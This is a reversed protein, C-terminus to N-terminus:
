YGIAIWMAGGSLNGIGFSGKINTKTRENVQSAYLSASGNRAHQFCFSYNTDSFPTPFTITFNQYESSSATFKGWQIIIGNGLKLNGNPAKSIATTTVISNVYSCSPAYTFVSKDSYFGIGIGEKKTSGSTFEFCQLDSRISGDSGVQTAIGGLRNPERAGDKDHFILNWFQTSSKAVGKTFDSKVVGLASNGDVFGKFTKNGYIEEDGTKRVFFSGLWEKIKQLTTAKTDTTTEVPLVMDPALDEALELQSIEIEETAM